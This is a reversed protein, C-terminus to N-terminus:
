KQFLGADLTKALEEGPATPSVQNDILIGHASVPKGYYRRNAEADERIVSGDLSVSAMLGHTRAYSMIGAQTNTSAEVGGGVTIATADFDMGITFPHQLVAELAERTRIILLVDSVQGGALLGFGAGSIRFFAPQSWKGDKDRLLAAGQGYHGSFLFGGRIMNSFIIVARTDKLIDASIAQPPQSFDYAVGSVARLKDALAPDGGNDDARLSAAPAIALSVMLVVAFLNKSIM